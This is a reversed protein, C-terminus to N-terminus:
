KKKFTYDNNGHICLLEYKEKLKNVCTNTDQNHHFEVCIIGININKELIDYLVDYEAGEIDIKLLDIKNHGNALMMNDLTNVQARFSDGTKQINQISHSVHEKKKPEFFEIQTNENWLGIARFIYKEDLDLSQLYTKSRPTPDYGYIKCKYTDMLGQDFSIDEGIGVCYVISDEGLSNEPISWGGYKTGIRKLM